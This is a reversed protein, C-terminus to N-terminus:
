REGIWLGQSTSNIVGKVESHTEGYKQEAGGVTSYFSDWTKWRM